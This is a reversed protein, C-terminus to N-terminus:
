ALHPTFRMSLDLWPSRTIPASSSILDVGCAAYARLDAPAIGSAELVVPAGRHAALARLRPVLAALAAPPFDDLLVGNAGAQVAAVAEGDTEAEVIVAAPWPAGARVAAVAAAIGGAWAIHNEKLMAADDLGLRHNRGGGCRVAYKELVRLGPTTKRTDALAVGSGELEAVLAATATAIGSLRMALNLATREGAVLAAASGELELLRQGAGVPEGDGVLLRVTLQPDLRQFLPAVLVGGCFVGPQRALWHARGSRGELAPATLDGRGLDEDLWRDLARLLAPTCPLSAAM